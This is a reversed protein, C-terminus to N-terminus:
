TEQIPHPGSAAEQEPTRAAASQAALQAAQEAAQQKLKIDQFVQSAVQKAAGAKILTAWYHLPKYACTPGSHMIMTALAFRVSDNDPFGYTRIITGSWTQFEQIGQPVASPLRGRLRAILTKIVTNLKSLM